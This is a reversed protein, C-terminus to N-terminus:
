GASDAKWASHPRCGSIRRRRTSARRPARRAGTSGAADGFTAVFADAPELFNVRPRAPVSDARGLAPRPRDVIGRAQPPTSPRAAASRCSCRPRGRRHGIAQEDRLAAQGFDGFHAIRLATSASSSSRTRAASRGPRGRRARVRGDVVEGVPSELPGQPRASCVVPSGGIAEVGNHDRHEHTVLVLTPRSARSRQTTSSSVARPSTLEERRRARDGTRSGLSRPRRPRREHEDGVLM